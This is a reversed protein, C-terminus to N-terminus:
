LLRATSGIPGAVGVVQVGLSRAFDKIQKELSGM